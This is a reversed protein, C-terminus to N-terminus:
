KSTITITVRLIQTITIPLLVQPKPVLYNYNFDIVLAHVTTHSM